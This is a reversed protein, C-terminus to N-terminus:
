NVQKFPLLTAAERLYAETGPREGVVLEGLRDPDDVLEGAVRRVLGVSAGEGGAFGVSRAM